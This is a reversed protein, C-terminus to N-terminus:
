EGVLFSSSFFATDSPDSLADLTESRGKCIGKEFIFGASHLHFLLNDERKGTESDHEYATHRISECMRDHAIDKSFIFMEKRTLLKNDEDDSLIFYKMMETIEPIGEKLEVTIEAVKDVFIREWERGFDVRIYRIADRCSEDSYKAPLIFTYTKGKVEVKCLKYM